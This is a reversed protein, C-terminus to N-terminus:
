SWAKSARAARGPAGAPQADDVVVIRVRSADTTRQLKKVAQIVLGPPGFTPIVITVPRGNEEYWATVLRLRAREAFLARAGRDLGVFRLPFTITRLLAERWGHYRVTLYARRPLNKLM